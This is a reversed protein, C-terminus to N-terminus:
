AGLEAPVDTVFCRARKQAELGVYWMLIALRRMCGVVAIKKHKPNREVMRRYVQAEERDTHISAWVGQCLVKRVRRPGQHTIHGKRDGSEGSEDSSPVLGLFAGVEKRNKFRSLDGM